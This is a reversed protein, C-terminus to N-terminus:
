EAALGIASLPLVFNAPDIVATLSGDSNIHYGLLTAPGPTPLLLRSDLVYLFHSDRSLAEEIPFTGNPATATAGNPTLLAIAGNAAISYGSITLSDANSTYAFRGDNTIVVWCPALQFDFVPGNILKLIGGALRYATAGGTHNPGGTADTVVLQHRATPSFAIGFPVAGISPVATAASLSGDEHIRYVDILNTLKETVLVYHGSPDIQVQGPDPHAVSLPRTSGSIYHLEGEDDVRFGSVSASQASANAANLVYLLGDHYSLSVPGAGHSSFVGVPSLHGNHVNVVSIQDSGADVAFLRTGEDHTIILSGQTGDAFATVSGAGGITTTSAFILSGDEERSYVSISNPGVLSNNLVYVYGDGGNEALASAHSVPGFLVGLAALLLAILADAVLSRRSLPRMRLRGVRGPRRRSDTGTLPDGVKQAHADLDLTKRITM